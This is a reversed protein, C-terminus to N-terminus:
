PPAGRGADPERLRAYRLVDTFVGEKFVADRESGELVYGCKELVRASAVNLAFVGAELRRAARDRSLVFSTFAAVAETAFGQGWHREGLWYGLVRTHRYVDNRASVGIGGILHGQHSIALHLEGDRGASAAIWQEADARTYPHPFRDLMTRSVARNGAERVLADAHQPAYPVLELRATSLVAAVSDRPAVM